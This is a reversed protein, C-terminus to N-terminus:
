RLRGRTFPSTLMFVAHERTARFLVLSYTAVFYSAVTAWAAGRAGFEPIWALNLIFNCSLGLLTRYLSVKQLNEVLLHQSSTIGHIVAISGWVHIALVAAADAYDRGFALAVVPGSLVSLVASTALAFGLGAMYVQHSAIIAPSVSAIFISPALYLLESLKAAASYVGVEHSSSMRQLMMVDMRMYLTVAVAALFYPWSDALLSRMASRDIRWGALSHARRSYAWLLALSVLVMEAM